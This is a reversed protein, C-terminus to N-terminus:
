MVGMPPSVPVRFLVSRTISQEATKQEPNDRFSNTPDLQKLKESTEASVGV